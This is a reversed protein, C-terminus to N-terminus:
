CPSRQSAAPTLAPTHTNFRVTHLSPHPIYASPVTAYRNVRSHQQPGVGAFHVVMGALGNQQVSRGSWRSCPSCEGPTIVYVVTIDELREHPAMGATIFFEFNQRQM